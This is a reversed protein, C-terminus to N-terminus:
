LTASSMPRSHPPSSRVYLAVILMLLAAACLLSPFLELVTFALAGITRVHHRRCRCRANTRLLAVRFPASLYMRSMSPLRSECMTYTNGGRRFFGVFGGGRYESLWWGGGLGGGLCGRAGGRCSRRACGSLGSPATRGPRAATCARPTSDDASSRTTAQRTAHEPTPGQTDTDEPFVGAGAMVRWVDAPEAAVRPVGAASDPDASDGGAGAATAEAVCAQLHPSPQARHGTSPARHETSPPSLRRTSYTLTPLHIPLVLHSSQPTRPTRLTFTSKTRRRRIGIASPQASSPAFIAIPITSLLL